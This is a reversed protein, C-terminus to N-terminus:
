VGAGAGHDDTVASALKVGAGDVRRVSNITVFVGGVHGGHDTDFFFSGAHNVSGVLDGTNAVFM